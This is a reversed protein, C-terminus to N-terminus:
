DWDIAFGGPGAPAQGIGRESERRLWKLARKDHMILPELLERCRKNHEKVWAIEERNLMNERIMKAQIPVVTLRQFGLWSDANSSNRPRVRAVLLASEIRIGWHGDNYFGPENTIVHGPVFPVTSSFSQPGEHVNLYSGFGHGTGHLYNLGDKWLARRALVDLQQGSTGEPFIASDISIHGQLVRTYAECQEATPRGFHVTRTCDITGDRYQAGSDNLYPTDRDIFDSSDKKPSYHPLAANKGTASINEYAQGEYWDNKRRYETLRQAAEWETVEYGKALKDELWAMWMVCSAGDRLYADRMGEIETQNKVAKLTDVYSPVQSVTYRFHTLLLSIAYSTEQSILVKGKGWTPRRLFSWLDNYPSVEVGLQQLYQETDPGLKDPDVFLVTPAMGDMGIFLYSYFVPNFQVDKGRLNLLWAINSLSTILTAVHRHEEKVEASSKIYSPRSPPQEAIWARVKQLKSYAEEGAFRRAQMTIPQKSRTPKSKWILDVLNQTPFVLKASIRQMASNLASAQSYSIMRADMGLRKGEGARDILFQAWDKPGDPLGARILSWNDDLEDEAQLWYRSDTVLYANSRSVIAQGASGTFSCGSFQPDVHHYDDCPASSDALTFMTIFAHMLFTSQVM